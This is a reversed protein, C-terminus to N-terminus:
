TDDCPDRLRTAVLAGIDVVVFLWSPANISKLAFSLPDGSIPYSTPPLLMIMAFAVVVYLVM